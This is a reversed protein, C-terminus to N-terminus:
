RNRGGEMEIAKVAFRDRLSDRRCPNKLLVNGSAVCGLFVRSRGARRDPDQPHPIPVSPNLTSGLVDASDPPRWVNANQSAEDLIREWPHSGGFAEAELLRAAELMVSSPPRPPSRMIIQDITEKVNDHQIVGYQNCAVIDALRVHDSPREPCPVGAAIGVMIIIEISPFYDCMRTAAIAASDTGMDALIGCAIPHVGGGKAPIQTFSYRRNAGRGPLHPEQQRPFVAWIAALEVPKAVLIGIQPVDTGRPGKATAGRM